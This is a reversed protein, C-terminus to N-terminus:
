GGAGNGKRPPAEPALEAAHQVLAEAMQVRAARCADTLIRRAETLDDVGALAGAAGELLRDLVADLIRLYAAVDQQVDERPLLAAAREANAIEYGRRQEILLRRREDALPGGRAAAAERDRARRWRAVEGLNFRGHGVKPCGQRCWEAITKETVCFIQALAATRVVLAQVAAPPYHESV